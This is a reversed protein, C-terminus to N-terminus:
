KKQNKPDPDALPDSHSSLQALMNKIDSVGRIAVYITITCYWLVCMITLLLWFWHKNM